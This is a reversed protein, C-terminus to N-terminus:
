RYVKSCLPMVKCMKIHFAFLAQLQLKLEIDDILHIEIVANKFLM